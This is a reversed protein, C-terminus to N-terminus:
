LSGLAKGLRELGRELDADALAYSLRVYGPAGFAEGPVLAVGAEDLIWTGLATTDPFRDGLFGSLDPFVYFAGEPELCRVGDMSVLAEVALRRRRDFALRMEEVVDQPGNLAAIAARQTVNAVNSTLHSQLKVAATVVDPPGILWGVRWGTMAYSKAVGNVVVWRDGLEPVTGPLSVFSSDGYVLRQYIEDTVIWVDHEAAWRGIEVVEDADYVAGTPNSPSVFVLLKTAATHHRELMEPTVKFGDDISTPVQIPRGGALSIAEPYTVWYPSPILAEDDPDLLAQFSTYVAQKGGNTIVVQDSSVDLGSYERANDAVAARLENLGAAATYHHNAPDRVAAAATEVVHDPTPFDPEGAGFSIVDEGAAKLAAARATIAMTASEPIETLRRSVRGM